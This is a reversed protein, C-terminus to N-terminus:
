PEWGGDHISLTPDAPPVHFDRNVNLAKPAGTSRPELPKSITEGDSREVFWVGRTLMASPSPERDGADKCAMAVAKRLSMEIKVADVGRRQANRIADILTQASVKATGGDIAAQLATPLEVGPCPGDAAEFLDGSGVKTRPSPNSNKSSGKGNYSSYHNVPGGTGGQNQQTEDYEGAPVYREAPVPHVRGGTHDRVPGGTHRVRGGTRGEGEVKFTQCYRELEARLRAPDEQTRVTYVQQGAAVEATVIYNNRRLQSLSNRVTQSALGVERGIAAPELEGFMSEHDWQAVKMVLHKLIVRHARHATEDDAIRMMAELCARLIAVERHESVAESIKKM